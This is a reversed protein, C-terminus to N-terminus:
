TDVHGDWAQGRGSSPFHTLFEGILVLLGSVVVVGGILRLAVTKKDGVPHPREPVNRRHPGPTAQLQESM